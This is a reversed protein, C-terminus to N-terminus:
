ATRFATGAPIITDMTAGHWNNLEIIAEFVVEEPAGTVRSWEQVFEGVTGNYSHGEPPVFCRGVYDPHTRCLHDMSRIDFTPETEQALLPTAISLLLAIATCSTRKM